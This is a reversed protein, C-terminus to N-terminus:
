MATRKSQCREQGMEGMKELVEEVLKKRIERIRDVLVKRVIRTELPKRPSFTFLFLKIAIGFSIGGTRTTRSGFVKIAQICTFFDQGCITNGSM